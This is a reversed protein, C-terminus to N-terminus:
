RLMRVLENQPAAFSPVDVPRAMQLKEEAVDTQVAQSGVAAMPAVDATVDAAKERKISKRRWDRVRM